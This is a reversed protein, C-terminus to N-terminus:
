PSSAKYMVRNPSLYQRERCAPMERLKRLNDVAVFLIRLNNQLNSVLRFQAVVVQVIKRGDHLVVFPNRLGDDLRGPCRHSTLPIRSRRLGFARVSVRQRPSRESASM